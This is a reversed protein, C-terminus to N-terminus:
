QNATALQRKQLPIEDVNEGRSIHINRLIELTSVMAKYLANEYNPHSKVVGNPGRLVLIKPKGTEEYLIKLFNNELSLIEEPTYGHLYEELCSFSSELQGNGTATNCDRILAWVPNRLLNGVFCAECQYPDMENNVYASTINQWQEQYTKMM